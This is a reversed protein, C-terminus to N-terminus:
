EFHISDILIEFNESGENTDFLDTEVYLLTVGNLFYYERRDGGTAGAEPNDYFFGSLEQSNTFTAFTRSPFVSRLYIELSAPQTSLTVYFFTATTTGDSFETSPSNSTDIGPTSSPSAMCDECGSDQDVAASPADNEAVTWGSAYEGSLGFDDNSYITGTGEETPSSTPANGPNGTETGQCKAAIQSLTFLLIFLRILRSGM